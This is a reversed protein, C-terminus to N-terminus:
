RDEFAMPEGMLHQADHMDFHFGALRSHPRAQFSIYDYIAFIAAAEARLSFHRITM